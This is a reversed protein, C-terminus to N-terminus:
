GGTGEAARPPREHAHAARDGVVRPLAHGDFPRGRSLVPPQLRLLDGGAFPAWCRSEPPSTSFLRHASVAVAALAEAGASLSAAASGGRLGYRAVMLATLGAHAALRLGALPLLPWFAAQAVLWKELCQSVCLFALGPLYLVLYSQALTSIAPDQGAAALLGGSFSWLM